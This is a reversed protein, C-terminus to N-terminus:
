ILWMAICQELIRCIEEGSCGNEQLFVFLASSNKPLSEQQANLEKVRQRHCLWWFNGLCPFTSRYVTITLSCYKEANATKFRIHLLPQLGASFNPKWYKLTVGQCITGPHSSSLQILM